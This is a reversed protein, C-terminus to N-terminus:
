TTKRGKKGLATKNAITGHAQFRRPITNDDVLWPNATLFERIRGHLRKDDSKLRVLTELMYGLQSQPRKPKEGHYDDLMEILKAAVQSNISGHEGFSDFAERVVLTIRQLDRTKGKAPSPTEATSPLDSGHLQQRLLAARVNLLELVQARSLAVSDGNHQVTVIVGPDQDLDIIKHSM